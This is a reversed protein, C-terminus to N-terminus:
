DRIIDIKTFFKKLTDLGELATITSAGKLEVEDHIKRSIIEFEAVLKNADVM